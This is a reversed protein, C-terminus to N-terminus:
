FNQGVQASNNKQLNKRSISRFIGKEDAVVPLSKKQPCEGFRLDRRSGSSSVNQFIASSARMFLKTEGAVMQFCSHVFLTEWRSWKFTFEETCPAFTFTKEPPIHLFAELVRQYNAGLHGLWYLSRKRIGNFFAIQFESYLSLCESDQRILSTDTYHHYLPSGSCSCSFVLTGGYTPKIRCPIPVGSTGFQEM